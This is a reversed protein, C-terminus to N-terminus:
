GRQRRRSRAFESLLDGLFVGKEDALDRLLKVDKKHMWVRLQTKSESRQNPM